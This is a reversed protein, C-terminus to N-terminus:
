VQLGVQLALQRLEGVAQSGVRLSTACTAQQMGLPERGLWRDHGALPYPPKPRRKQEQIRGRFQARSSIVRLPLFLILEGFGALARGADIERV